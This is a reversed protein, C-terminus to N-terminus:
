SEKLNSRARAHLLGLVLGLYGWIYWLTTHYYFVNDTISVFLLGVVIVLASLILGRLYSNEARIYGLYLTKLITINMLLFIFLGVIGLELLLRWYDNHVANEIGAFQLAIETAMGWGYGFIPRAQFAPVTSKLMYYRFQGSNIFGSAVPYGSRSLPMSFTDPTLLDAFRAPIGPVLVLILLLGVPLAVLLRREKLVGIILLGLVLAGWTVRTFTLVIMVSALGGLMRHFRSVPKISAFMFGYCVFAIAMLYFSFGNPHWFTSYIRSYGQTIAYVSGTLLSIFGVLIPVISSLLIVKVLLRVSRESNVATMLSILFISYVSALRVAERITEDRNSSWLSSAFVLLVLITHLLVIPNKIVKFFLRTRPLLFLLLLGIVAVNSLGNLNVAGSFLAFQQLVNDTISKFFLITLLLYEPKGVAFVSFALLAVLSFCYVLWQLPTSQNVSVLAGVCVSLVGLVLPLPEVFRREEGRTFGVISASRNGHLGM